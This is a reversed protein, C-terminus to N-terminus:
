IIFLSRLKMAIEKWTQHNAINVDVEDSYHSGRRYPRSERGRAIRTSELMASFTKNRIGIDMIDAATPHLSEFVM